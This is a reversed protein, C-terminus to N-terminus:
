MSRWAAMVTTHEMMRLRSSTRQRGHVVGVDLQARVEGAAGEQPVRGEPQAAEGEAPEKAALGRGLLREGGEGM